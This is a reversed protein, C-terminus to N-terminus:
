RAFDYLKENRKDKNERMKNCCFMTIFTHLWVQLYEVSKGCGGWGELIQTQL